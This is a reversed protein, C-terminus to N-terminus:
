QYRLSGFLFFNFYLHDLKGAVGFMEGGHVGFKGDTEEFDVM